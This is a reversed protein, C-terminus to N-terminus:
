EDLNVGMEEFKAAANLFHATIWFVSWTESYGGRLKFVDSMNGSQAFNTHQIQEGQHGLPDTLQFASRYMVKALDQLRKDKLITGMQYVEPSYMVGFVDVHQNQPSVVTWGTSRFHHDALRGPPQPIDWVVTYSLMVDMAHRAWELHTPDKTLKYLEFFAQFAAWAGEKDECSADLTGGWYPEDMSVHRAVYNQAAKLAAQRYQDNGFLQFARVLPAVWFAENTSVPNWNRNLIRQAVRDCVQRLFHEWRTTNFQQRHRATEIAKAFSLLANGCSVPDGGRWEDQKLSYEVPFLGDHRIPSSALFDLLKQVKDRISPDRLYKGELVQLSYGMSDAQGCWGMVISNDRGPYMCFGAVGHARDTWRSLAYAYKSEIIERFKPFRQYHFPKYRDLSTYLAARFGAGKQAVPYAEILFEKEIIQGPQMTIWANPYPMSQRQRAKAVSRQKNYGIPGSYLVFRTQTRSNELGLSWWQDLHNGGSVPSPKTHVAVAQKAKPSELVVFPMPYRHDEFIAFEAPEGRWVPVARPNTKNGSPNGYYLIGPMFPRLDTGPMDFQISLTLQELPQKGKWEFRRQGRILSAKERTYIDRIVLEGSPLSITGHLIVTTGRIEKKQPSAHVWQRMWNGSWATAVSWLGDSPARLVTQGNLTFRPEQKEDFQLELTNACVASTSLLYICAMFFFFPSM